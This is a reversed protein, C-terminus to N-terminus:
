SPHMSRGRQWKGKEAAHCPTQTIGTGQEAELQKMGKEPWLELNSLCRCFDNELQGRELSAKFATKSNQRERQLSNEGRTRHKLAALHQSRPYGRVFIGNSHRELPTGQRRLKKM